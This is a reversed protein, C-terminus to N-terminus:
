RDFQMGYLLCIAAWYCVTSTSVHIRNLLFILNSQKMFFTYKITMEICITSIFQLVFVNILHTQLLFLSSCLLIIFSHIRKVLLNIFLIVFIKFINM